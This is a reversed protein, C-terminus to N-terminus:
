RHRAIYAAIIVTAALMVIFGIGMIGILLISLKEARTPKRVSEPNGVEDTWVIASDPRDDPEIQFTTFWSRSESMAM